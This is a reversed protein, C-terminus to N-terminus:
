HASRTRPRLYGRYLADDSPTLPGGVSPLVPHGVVFHAHEPVHADAATLLPQLLSGLTILMAGPKLDDTLHAVTDAVENLPVALVILGANEAARHLNWETRNVANQKRAAQAAEPDRDHGVIEFGTEGRQLALGISSGTVGLGILTIMPKAM